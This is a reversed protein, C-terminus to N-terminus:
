GFCPVPGKSRAMSDPPFNREIKEQEDVVYIGLLILGFYIGKGKEARVVIFHLLGDAAHRLCGGGPRTVRRMAQQNEARVIALM